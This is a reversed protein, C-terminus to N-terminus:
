VTFLGSMFLMYDSDGEDEVIMEDPPERDGRCLDYQEYFEYSVLSKV